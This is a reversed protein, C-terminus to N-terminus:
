YTISVKVFRYPQEADSYADTDVFDSFDTCSRIWIRNDALSQYVFMTDLNEANLGINIIKYLGGKFHKVIDNVQFDRDYVFTDGELHGLLSVSTILFEGHQLLEDKDILAVGDVIYGDISEKCSVTQGAVWNGAFNEKFKFVSM